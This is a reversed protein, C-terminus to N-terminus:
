PGTSVTRIANSFDPRSPDKNSASIVQRNSFKYFLYCVGIPVLTWLGCQPLSSRSNNLNNSKQFSQHGSSFKLTPSLRIKYRLPFRIFNSSTFKM